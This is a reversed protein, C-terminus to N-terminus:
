TSIQDVGFGMLVQKGEVEVGDEGILRVGVGDWGTGM